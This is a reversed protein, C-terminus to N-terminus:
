KKIAVKKAKKRNSDDNISVFINPNESKNDKNEKNEKNDIIKRKHSMEPDYINIEEVDTMNENKKLEKEYKVRNIIHSETNTLRLKKSINKDSNNNTFTDDDSVAESTEMIEEKMQKLRLKEVRDLYDSLELYTDNSLNNFSLFLANQNKMSELEPNKDQIIKKVQEFNSKSKLKNIKELLKKKKDFTYINSM